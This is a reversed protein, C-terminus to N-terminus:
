SAITKTLSLCWVVSLLNNLNKGTLTIIKFKKKGDKAGIRKEAV